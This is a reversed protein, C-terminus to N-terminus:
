KESKKVAPKPAPVNLAARLERVAERKHANKRKQINKRSRPRPM